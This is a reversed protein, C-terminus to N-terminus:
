HSVEMTFTHTYAENYTKIDLKIPEEVAFM